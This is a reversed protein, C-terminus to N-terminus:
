NQQGYDGRLIGAISLDEDVDPWHLGAPMLRIHDLQKPTAKGLRSNGKVPFRLERGDELAVFIHGHSHWARAPRTSAPNLISNKVM